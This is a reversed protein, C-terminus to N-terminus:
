EQSQESDRRTPANSATASDLIEHRLSQKKRWADYRNKFANVSGQAKVDEPLANWLQGVRVTFFHRRMELNAREIVLVERKRVEETDVIMTNSRTPRVEEEERVMFWDSREVRNKGRMTKFTEIMDGRTRREKLSTMGLANMRDGYTGAPANSIMRVLRQQVKELVECDRQLWPNWAAASYELKPRM